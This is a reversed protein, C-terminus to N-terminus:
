AGLKQGFYEGYDRCAHLGEGTGLDNELLNFAGLDVPCMRYVHQMTDLIM